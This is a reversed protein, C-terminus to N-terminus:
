SPEKAAVWNEAATGEKLIHIYRTEHLVKWFIPTDGTNGLYYPRIAKM